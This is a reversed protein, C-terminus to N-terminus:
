KAPNEIVGRERLFKYADHLQECKPFHKKLLKDFEEEPIGRRQLDRKERLITSLANQNSRSLHAKQFELMSLPFMGLGVLGSGVAVVIRLINWEYRYLVFSCVTIFMLSFVLVLLVFFFHKKTFSARANANMSARLTRECQWLAIVTSFVNTKAAHSMTKLYSSLDLVVAEFRETTENAIFFSQVRKRYDGRTM